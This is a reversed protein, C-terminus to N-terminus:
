GLTQVELGHVAATIVADGSKKPFADYTWKLDSAKTVFELSADGIQVKVHKFIYAEM